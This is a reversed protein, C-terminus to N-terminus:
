AVLKGALKLTFKSLQAAANLVDAKIQRRAADLEAQKVLTVLENIQAQNFTIVQSVLNNYTNGLQVYLAARELQLNAVLMRNSATTNIVEGFAAIRGLLEQQSKKVEADNAVTFAITPALQKALQEAEQRKVSLDEYLDGVAKADNIIDKIKDDLQQAFEMVDQITKQIAM